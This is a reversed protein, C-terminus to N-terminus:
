NLTSPPINIATTKMQNILMSALLLEKQAEERHKLSELLKAKAEKEFTLLANEKVLLAQEKVVLAQEKQYLAQEQQKLNKIKKFFSFINSVYDFFKKFM